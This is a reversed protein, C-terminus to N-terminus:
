FNVTLRMGLVVATSTNPQFPSVLQLDLTLAVAPTLAISYFAEFAQTNDEVGAAALIRGTQFNIYSYGVGFLDDDRGPLIGQGGVGASVTWM